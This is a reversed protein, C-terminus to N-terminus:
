SFTEATNKQCFRILTLILKTHGYPEKTGNFGSEKHMTAITRYIYLLQDSFKM